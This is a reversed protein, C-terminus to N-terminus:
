TPPRPPLRRAQPQVVAIMLAGLAAMFLCLLCLPFLVLGLTLWGAIWVSWLSTWLIRFIRRGHTEPRSVNPDPLGEGWYRPTNRRNV